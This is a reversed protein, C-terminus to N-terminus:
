ADFTIVGKAIRGQLMDDMATELEQLRYTRSILQGLQLDGSRAWDFLRPFDRTPLCDGYLPTIYSKNWFFDTLEMSTEGHLGSVQVAQGGNRVLKLPLFALSSVGTAEFAHDAGRDDCLETVHQVLQSHDADGDGPIIIDTAGLTEALQLRNAHRDIAIIRRAGALRAGQVVSLGVGGCGIVIVTDGPRVDATNIVSGVGTMVGCGVICAHEPPIDDPIRTAASEPVLTYESFAGLRFSRDVPRGDLLSATVSTKHTDECLPAMGDDCQFCQGCPMAWNLLVTDGVAVDRVEDGVADVIGAGEHGLVLPGPWSLSAYDTHCLGCALLKTRIEAPGPAPTEIERISFGGANDSVAALGRRSDHSM